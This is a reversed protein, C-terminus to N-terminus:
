YVSSASFVKGGLQVLSIRHRLILLPSQLMFQYVYFNFSICAEKLLGNKSTDEVILLTKNTFFHIVMIQYRLHFMCISIKQSIKNATNNVNWLCCSSLIWVPPTAWWPLAEQARMCVICLCLIIIIKVSGWLFTPLIRSYPTDKFPSYGQCLLGSGLYLVLLVSM